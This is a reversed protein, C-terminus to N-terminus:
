EVASLSPLAPTSKAAIPPASQTRPATAADAPLPNVAPAASPLPEPQSFVAPAEVNWSPLVLPAFALLILALLGIHAIWSRESASRRQMVQLLGLTAGAVILSKLAIAILVYM